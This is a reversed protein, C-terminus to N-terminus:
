DRKDAQTKPSDLDFTQVTMLLPLAVLFRGFIIQTIYAILFCLGFTSVSGLFTTGADFIFTVSGLLTVFFPLVPNWRNGLDPKRANVSTDPSDNKM